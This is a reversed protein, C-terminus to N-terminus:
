SQSRRDLIRSKETPAMRISLAPHGACHAFVVAQRKWSATAESFTKIPQQDPADPGSARHVLPVRSAFLLESVLKPDRGLLDAVPNLVGAQRAIKLGDFPDQKAHIPLVPARQPQPQALSELSGAGCCLLLGFGVGM